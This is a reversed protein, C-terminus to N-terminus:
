KIGSSARSKSSRRATRSFINCRARVAIRILRATGNRTPGGRRYPNRRVRSCAKPIAYYTTTTLIRPNLEIEGYGIREQPLSWPVVRRM